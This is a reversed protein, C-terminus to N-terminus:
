SPLKVLIAHVRRFVQRKLAKESRENLTVDLEGLRKRLEADVGGTAASFEDFAAPDGSLLRDRWREAKAFLQKEHREHAALQDLRARILEADAKRMLKGIFQKQRRLAEHSKMKACARVADLLEDSLGISDLDSNNLPILYEGLEQLALQERKRANKSPKEITM